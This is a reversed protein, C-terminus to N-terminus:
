VTEDALGFRRIHYEEVRDITKKIYWIRSRSLEYDLAVQAMSFFLCRQHIALDREINPKKSRELIADRIREDM